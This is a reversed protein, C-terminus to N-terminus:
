SDQAAARRLSTFFDEADSRFWGAFATRPENGTVATVQHDLRSSIRFLIADGWGTNAIEFIIRKSDHERLQFVGGAYKRSGLNISMGILRRDM